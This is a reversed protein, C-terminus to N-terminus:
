VKVAKGIYWVSTDENIQIKFLEFKNNKNQNNLGKFVMNKLTQFNTGDTMDFGKVVIDTFGNKEMSTMLEQPPIFKNWDHLGKPLQKLIDELLWIMIIKSKFTKNITDFLFVGKKNLVRYVESIVKNWDVVHELVDFCLVADFTNDDYPLNEAVGSQYDIKLGSKRAHDQAAQISNPSLDIGSVQAGLQAAFECAAGGGCGIDLVKIGKWNPIYNEFFEFRSKNLHNSLYLPEGESWWKDANIEYYQLDNKTM